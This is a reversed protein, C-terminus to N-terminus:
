FYYYMDLHKLIKTVVESNIAGCKFCNPLNLVYLQEKKKEEELM